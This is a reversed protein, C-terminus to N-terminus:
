LIKGLFPVESDNFEMGTLKMEVEVVKHLFLNACFRLLLKLECMCNANLYTVNHIPASLQKTSHIVARKRGLSRVTSKLEQHSKQTIERLENGRM